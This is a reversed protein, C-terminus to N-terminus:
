LGIEGGVADVTVELRRTLQECEGVAILVLPYLLRALLEGAETVGHGHQVLVRHTRLHM